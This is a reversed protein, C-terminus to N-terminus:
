EEGRRIKEALEQTKRDEWSSMRGASMVVFGHVALGIGWGIATWQFTWGDDRVLDFVFLGVNVIVYVAAHIYFGRLEKVRKRATELARTESDLM